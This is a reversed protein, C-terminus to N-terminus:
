RRVRSDFADRGTDPFFNACLLLWLVVDELKGRLTALLIGRARDADPDRLHSGGYRLRPCERRRVRDESEVTEKAYLYAALPASDTKENRVRLPIM